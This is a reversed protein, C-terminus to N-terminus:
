NLVNLQCSQTEFWSAKREECHHIFRDLAATSKFVVRCKWSLDLEVVDFGYLNHAVRKHRDPKFRYDQYVLDVASSIPAPQIDILHIPKFM